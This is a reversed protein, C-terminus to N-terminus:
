ALSTTARAAWDGFGEGADRERAFRGFLGDIVAAASTPDTAAASLRVGDHVRRTLRDGSKSGGVHLVYLDPGKGILALEALVPRACGNPCGTVRVVVDHGALGHRALAADVLATVQPLAREAEAMALACTPLAVCALADRVVPTLSSAADLGYASVISAVAARDGDSLSVLLLNQNPTLRVSAGSGRAVLADVVRRLGSRQRDRVRGSVVHVGLTHARGTESWGLVDSTSSFAPVTATAFTVGSRRRVEDVFAALGRAEITYKLRAHKRSVRNGWDRQTTLVAQAVAIVDNPAIVGIVDAIRPKTTDDNHTHGLGGGVTVVFGTVREREVVAIFGLDHAYVDVDNRPPCAIAIKFKRPLYADGYLPEDEAALGDASLPQEDLWIEAYARTQPLLAASLSRATETLAEHVPGTTWAPAMVNRNVDGCAAFTDLLAAHLRQMVPKLSPKMVGHLQFAQRTTLRLTGNALAGAIDDLALWQALTCAGAPLRTRLMFSTLPELKQAQREARLDRDDQQYSGHLKILNTDDPALGLSTQDVLSEALTGRLRRSARKIREVDSHRSDTGHAM